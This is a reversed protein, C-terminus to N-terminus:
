VSHCQSSGILIQDRFYENSAYAKEMDDSIIQVDKDLLPVSSSKNLSIVTKITTWWDKALLTGYKLKNAINKM